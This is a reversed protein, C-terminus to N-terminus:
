RYGQKVVLRAEMISRWTLSPNSDINAALFGGHLFNRTKGMMVINFGYLDKFGMKGHEKRVCLRDWRMWTVGGGGSGKTGSWYINIM